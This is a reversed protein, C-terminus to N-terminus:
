AIGPGDKKIKTPIEVIKKELESTSIEIELIKGIKKVINRAAKHQPLNSDSIEGFLGIGDIGQKKAQGLILGNFWTISNVDSGMPKINHSKLLKLSKANTAVGFVESDDNQEIPLYGGTSIVM